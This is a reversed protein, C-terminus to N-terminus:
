EGIKMPLPKDKTEPLCLTLVAAVAAIASLVISPLLPSIEGLIGIHPAAIGGARSIVSCIGVSMNRISTPFIESAYVFLAMFSCSICLKGIVWCILTLWHDSTTLILIFAIAALFHCGSVIIRRGYRQLSWPTFFYAPLEVLGMVLYNLYMNGALTTSYLSLGFYIFVDSCWLIVQIVFFAIFKRHQLYYVVISSGSKKETIPKNFIADLDGVRKEDIRKLWKRAEEKKNRKVLFHLTEEVFWFHIFFLIAMPIACNRIIVRWSNAFYAIPTVSCYGVVWSLGFVLTTASRLKTPTHEYACVWAVMAAAIYVLGHLFRLGSYIYITPSWAAAIALFAELFVCLLLVPRRGFYDAAFTLFIGGVMNGFMFCSTSWKALHARDGTLDFEQVLTVYSCNPCDIATFASTMMQMSGVVWMLSCAGIALLIRVNKCGIDDLVEDPKKFVTTSLTSSSM